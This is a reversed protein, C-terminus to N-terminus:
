LYGSHVLRDITNYKIRYKGRSIRTVMRNHHFYDTLVISDARKGRNKKPLMSRAKTVTETTVIGHVDALEVIKVLLPVNTKESIKRIIQNTM